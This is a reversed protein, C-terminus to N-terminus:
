NVAKTQNDANTTCRDIANTGREALPITLTEAVCKVYEQTRKHNAAAQARSIELNRTANALARDANLQNQVLILGFMVVILVLFGILTVRVIKDTREIRNRTKTDVPPM